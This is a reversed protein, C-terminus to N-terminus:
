FRWCYFGLYKWFGTFWLATFKLMRLFQLGFMSFCFERSFAWSGASNKHLTSSLGGQKGGTTELMKLCTEQSIWHMQRFRYKTKNSVQSIYLKKTLTKLRHNSPFRATAISLTSLAFRERFYRRPLSFLVFGQGFTILVNVFLSWIRVIIILSRSRYLVDRCFSRWWPKGESLESRYTTMIFIFLTNSWTISKHIHIHQWWGHVM